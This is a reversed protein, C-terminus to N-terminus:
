LKIENVISRGKRGINTKETLEYKSHHTNILDQNDKFYNSIATMNCNTMKQIASATLFWRENNSSQAENYVLCAKVAKDVRLYASGKITTQKDELTSQGDELRQKLGELKESQTVVKKCEALLGDKMLKNQSYGLSIAQDVIEKDENSLTDAFSEISELETDQNDINQNDQYFKVMEVFLKNSPLGKDKAIAKFADISVDIPNTIDTDKNPTGKIQLSTM